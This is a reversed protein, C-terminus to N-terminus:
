AKGLRLDHYMCCEDVKDKPEPLGEKKVWGPWEKENKPIQKEMEGGAPAREPGCWCGYYMARIKSETCKKKCEACYKGPDKNAPNPQATPPRNPIDDAM